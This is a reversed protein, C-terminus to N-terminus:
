NEFKIRFKKLPFISRQSNEYEAKDLRLLGKKCIVVPLNEIFFIVKGVEDERNEIKVDDIVTAEFIIINEDKIKTKAGNYPYGVADIFRKIKHSDDDWNIFYDNEDRWLSYTAEEENQPVGNLNDISLNDLIETILDTYCNTIDYIAKEIKIPYRIKIKSNCIINGKDYEKNAWLATVGIENDGNILANVLPAFGRYKPLLSDHLVILKQFHLVDIMWRWSIAIIFKSKSVYKSEDRKIFKLGHNKCLKVIELSYDNKTNKDTSYIVLDIFHKKNTKIIYDLVSFGKYSM